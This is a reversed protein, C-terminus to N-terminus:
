LVYEGGEMGLVLGDIIIVIMVIRRFWHDLFLNLNRNTCSTMFFIMMMM